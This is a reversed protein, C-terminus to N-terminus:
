PDIVRIVQERRAYESSAMREMGVNEFSAVRKIGVNKYSPKFPADGTVIMVSRWPVSHYWRMGIGWRLIETARTLKEMHM